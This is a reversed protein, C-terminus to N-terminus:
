PSCCSRLPFTSKLTPRIGTRLSKPVSGPKRTITSFNRRRSRRAWDRRRLEKTAIPGDRCSIRLSTDTAKPHMASM